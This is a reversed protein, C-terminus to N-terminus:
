NAPRNAKKEADAQSKKFAEEREREKADLKLCTRIQLVMGVIAIVMIVGLPVFIQRWNWEWMWDLMQSLALALGIVLAAAGLLSTMVIRIFRPRVIAILMCIALPIAGVLIVKVSDTQWHADVATQLNSWASQLYQLCTDGSPAAMGPKGHTTADPAALMTVLIPLAILAAALAGWVIREALFGLLFGVIALAIQVIGPPISAGSMNSIAAALPGGFAVGVAAMMLMIVVRGLMRGWVVLAAGLLIGVAAAIYAASGAFPIPILPLPNM